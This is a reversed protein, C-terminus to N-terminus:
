PSRRFLTVEDTTTKQSKLLLRDRRMQFIYVGHLSSFSLSLSSHPRKCCEIAYMAGRGYTTLNSGCSVCGLQGPHPQYSGLDCLVCTRSESLYFSGPQCEVAFCNCHRM